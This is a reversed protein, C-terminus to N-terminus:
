FGKNEPRPAGRNARKLVVERDVGLIEIASISKDVHLLNDVTRELYSLNGSVVGYQSSEALAAAVVHGREEIEQEIASQSTVRSWVVILVFMLVVPFATILVVREKIGWQLTWHKM